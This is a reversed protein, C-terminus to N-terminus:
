FLRVQLLKENIIKKTEIVKLTMSNAKYSKESDRINM